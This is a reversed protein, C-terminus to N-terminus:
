AAPIGPAESSRSEWTAYLQPPGGSVEIRKLKAGLLPGVQPIAGFGISRSDPSWFPQLAYETGPLPRPTTSDTPRVFLRPIGDSSSAVFAVQRGDPSVSVQFPNAMPPPEITFRVETPGQRRQSMSFVIWSPVAVCALALLTPTLRRIRRARLDVSSVKAPVGSETVWRLARTLDAAGQWRQDPNKALLTKVVHTLVPPAQPQITDIPPPESDLVAAITASHSEGPFARRGTLMEYLVAGFAFLDSRTDADRGELQEPAMYQLTGLLTGDTTM